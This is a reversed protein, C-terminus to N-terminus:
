RYVGEHLEDEHVHTHEPELTEDGTKRLMLYLEHKTAFGVFLGERPTVEITVSTYRAAEEEHDAAHGVALVKVNQLLIQAAAHQGQQIAEEPPRIISVLDVHDGPKVFGSVGQVDNVKISIARKGEEIPIIKNATTDAEADQDKPTQDQSAPDENNSDSTVPVTDPTGTQASGPTYKLFVTFYLTISAMLGFLIAWIWIKRTKM